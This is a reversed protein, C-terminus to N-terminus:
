LESGLNRAPAKLLKRFYHVTTRARELSSSHFFLTPALLLPLGVLWYWYTFGYVKSTRWIKASGVDLGNVKAIAIARVCNFPDRYTGLSNRITKNSNFKRKAIETLELATFHLPNANRVESKGTSDTGTAVWGKEEILIRVTPTAIFIIEGESEPDVAVDIWRELWSWYHSFTPTDLRKALPLRRSINASLSVSPGGLDIFYEEPSGYRQDERRRYMNDSIESDSVEDWVTTNLVMQWPDEKLYSFILNLANPLLIEQAGLLWLYDGIGFRILNEISNIFGLNEQNYIIRLHINKPLDYSKGIEELLESTGDTSANDIVLIEFIESSSRAEHFISELTKAIYPKENFVPIGITLKM